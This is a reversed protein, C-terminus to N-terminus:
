PSVGHGSGVGRMVGAGPKAGDASAACKKELPTALHGVKALLQAYLYAVFHVALDMCDCHSATFFNRTPATMHQLGRNIRFDALV